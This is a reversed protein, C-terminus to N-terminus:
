RPQLLLGISIIHVFLNSVIFDRATIPQRRPLIEGYHGRANKFITLAM